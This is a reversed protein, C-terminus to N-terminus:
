ALPYLLQTGEIGKLEAERAVEFTFEGTGIVLDHTLSSVLIEGGTAAGAVRAAYNVAHGFLDDAERTAEGTHIGIRVRVPSGPDNFTEAIRQQIMRSATMAPLAGPFALMFGDGVGNVVTGGQELTASTVVQNHAHLVELWARDGFSANLATSGEIDTFVLTVTGDPAVTGSLDPPEDSLIKTLLESTAQDMTVWTDDSKDGISIHSHVMKWEDQELQFILSFRLEDRKDDGIQALAFSWGVDGRVWAEVEPDPVPFRGVAEFEVETYRKNREPGLIPPGGTALVTLDATQSFRAIIADVDGRDIAALYRLTISRLEESRETGGSEDKAPTM